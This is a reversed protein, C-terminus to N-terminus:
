AAPTTVPPRRVGHWGGLSVVLGIITAAVGAGLAAAVLMREVAGPLGSLLVARDLVLQRRWAWMTLAIGAGAVLPGGVSHRRRAGVGVAVVGALAALAPLAVATIGPGAEGPLARAEAAGVVVAGLAVLGLAVAGVRPRWALAAVALAGWGLALARWPWPNPPTLSTLTGLVRVPTGDVVLPVEWDRQPPGEMAHIRHDHWVHEGGSGAVAWAPEAEADVESPATATPGYRASNLWTAPSRENREVVGAADIRLYPEGSYGPIDVRQGPAVRVRLFADGGIVDVRVGEIAPEVAVVEARDNTPRAPDAAVPAAPGVVVTALALAVALVRRLAM